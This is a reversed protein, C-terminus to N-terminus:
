RFRETARAWTEVDPWAWFRAEMLHGVPQSFGLYRARCDSLDPPHVDGVRGYSLPEM